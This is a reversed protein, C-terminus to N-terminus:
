MGPPNLIIQPTFSAFMLICIYTHIHIHAYVPKVSVCRTCLHATRKIHNIEDKLIVTKYSKFM